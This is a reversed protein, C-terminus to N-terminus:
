FLEEVTFNLIKLSLSFCHDCCVFLVDSVNVHGDMYRLIIVTFLLSLKM